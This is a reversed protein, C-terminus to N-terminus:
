FDLGRTKKFGDNQKKQLSVFDTTKNKKYLKKIKKL